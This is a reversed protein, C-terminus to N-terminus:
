LKTIEADAWLGELDYFSRVDRQFIHVAINVYDILIWEANATGEVHWPKERLNERVKKEVSNALANVQTNSNGQCIVFYDCVSNELNRLDLITIEEGKIDEIGDIILDLTPPFTKKISTKTM